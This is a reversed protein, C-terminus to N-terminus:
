NDVIENQHQFRNDMEFYIEDKLVKLDNVIKNQFDGFHKDRQKLEKITEEKVIAIKTERDDKERNIKENLDFVNDTMHRLIEKEKQLREAKETEQEKQLATIQNRIPILMEDTQKLREAREDKIM